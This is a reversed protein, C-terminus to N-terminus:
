VANNKEGKEKKYDECDDIVEPRYIYTQRKKCKWEGWLEDFVSHECIKCNSM